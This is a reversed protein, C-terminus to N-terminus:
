RLGIVEVVEHDASSSRFFAPLSQIGYGEVSTAWWVGMEVQAVLKVRRGPPVETFTFTCAEPHDDSFRAQYETGRGGCEAVDKGHIWLRWRQPIAAVRVSVQGHQATQLHDANWWGAEMWFWTPLQLISAPGAFQVPPPDPPALRAVAGAVLGALSIVPGEGFPGDSRGVLQGLGEDTNWCYRTWWRNTASFLRDGLELQVASGVAYPDPPAVNPTIPVGLVNLVTGYNNDFGASEHGTSLIPTYKQIVQTPFVAIITDDPVVLEYTVEECNLPLLPSPPVGDPGYLCWAAATAESGDNHGGAGCGPQAHAPATFATVATFVVVVLAARQLEVNM